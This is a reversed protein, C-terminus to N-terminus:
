VPRFFTTHHILFAGSHCIYLDIILVSFSVNYIIHVFVKGLSLRLRFDFEVPVLHLM